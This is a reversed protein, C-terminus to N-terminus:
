ILCLARGGSLNIVTRCEYEETEAGRLGGKWRRVTTSNEVGNGSVSIYMSHYSEWGCLNHVLGIVTSYPPLPYTLIMDTWGPVSFIASEQYANIMIANKM